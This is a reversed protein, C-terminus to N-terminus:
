QEFFGGCEQAQFTGVPFRGQARLYVLLAPVADMQVNMFPGQIYRNLLISIFQFGITYFVLGSVCIRGRQGPDRSATHYLSPCMGGYKTPSNSVGVMRECLICDSLLLTM